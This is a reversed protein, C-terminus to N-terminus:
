GGFPCTLERAHFVHKEGCFPCSENLAVKADLTRTGAGDTFVGRNELIIYNESEFVENKVPCVFILKM